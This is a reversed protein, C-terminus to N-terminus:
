TPPGPWPACDIALAAPEPPHDVRPGTV